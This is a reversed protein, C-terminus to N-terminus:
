LHFCALCGVLGPRQANGPALEESGAAHRRRCECDHRPMHQAPGSKHSGAFLDRHGMNAAARLPQPFQGAQEGHGFHLDHRRAIWDLLAVVVHVPGLVTQARLDGLRQALRIPLPACRANGSSAVHELFDDFGIIGALSARLLEVATGSISVKALQQFLFLVDVGHLDHRGVM